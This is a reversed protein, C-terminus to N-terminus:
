TPATGFKIMRYVIERPMEKDPMELKPLDQAAYHSGYVSILSPDEPETDEPFLSPARRLSFRRLSEVAPEAQKDTPISALHVM